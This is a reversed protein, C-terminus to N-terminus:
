KRVGRVDAASRDLLDPLEGTRDVTTPGGHAYVGTYMSQMCPAGEIIVHAPM